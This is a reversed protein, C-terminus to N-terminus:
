FAVFNPTGNIPILWTDKLKDFATFEIDSKKVARQGYGLKKDQTFLSGGSNNYAYITVGLHNSLQKAISDTGYGGRCSFLRVQADSRFKDKPLNTVSTNNEGGGNSLNTDPANAEGIYLSGIGGNWGHGFYALYVIEGVDLKTILDSVTSIHHLGITDKATFAPIKPFLRSRVEKEHTKASMKFLDGANHDGMGPDGYVIIFNQGM